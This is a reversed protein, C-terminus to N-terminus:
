SEDFIESFTACELHFNVLDSNLGIQGMKAWKESRKPGNLGQFAPTCNAASPTSVEYPDLSKPNM